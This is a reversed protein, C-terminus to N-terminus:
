PAFKRFNGKDQFIRDQLGKNWRQFPAADSTIPVSNAQAGIAIQTAFNPPITSNISVSEVFSSEGKPLLGVRFRTVPTPDKLLKDSNAKNVIHLINTDKDHFPELQLYNSLNSNIGNCLKKIFDLFKISNEGDLSNLLCDRVFDFNLYTHMFHCINRDSDLFDVGIGRNLKKFDFTKASRPGTREIGKTRSPVVCIRPDAAFVDSPLYPKITELIM